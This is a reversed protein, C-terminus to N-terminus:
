TKHSSRQTCSRKTDTVNKLCLRQTISRKTATGVKRMKEVTEFDAFFEANNQYAYEFQLKYTM